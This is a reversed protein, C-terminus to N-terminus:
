LLLVSVTDMPRIENTGAPIDVLCNSGIGGHLQGNRQDKPIYVGDPRLMGRVFRRAPSAKPYGNVAPRQLRMLRLANRGLAKQEFYPFLVEFMAIASYPNGSLSLIVADRLRAALTPSGPKVAIGRFLLDADLSNIIQPLYDKQGVSIGGTTLVLDAADAAENVAARIADLDDSYSACTIVECGLQVLRSQFFALNSNYIQGLRLTEKSSVLESGTTIVAARIPRRVQVTRVGGAVGAAITYPDIIQGKASLIDGECFDEGSPVCNAHQSLKQYLTVREQGYDTMEQPIIVDAGDPIPAGTMIRVAHGRPLTGFPEDGAFVTGVVPFSQPHTQSIEDMLDASRLAYGDMASRPFPPQTLQAIMDETLTRSLATEIPIIESSLTPSNQMLSLQAEEVSYRNM